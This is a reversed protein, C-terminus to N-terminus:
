INVELSYIVRVLLFNGAGSREEEGEYLESFVMTTGGQFNIAANLNGHMTSLFTRPDIEPMASSVLTKKSGSLPM